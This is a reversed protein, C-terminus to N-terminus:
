NWSIASVLIAAALFVSALLKPPLQAVPGTSVRQLVVKACSVFIFDIPLFVLDPSSGAAFCFHARLFLCAV